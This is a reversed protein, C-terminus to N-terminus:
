QAQFDEKTGNAIELGNNRVRERFIELVSEQCWVVVDMCLVSEKLWRGLRRVERIVQLSLERDIERDGIRQHQMKGWPITIKIEMNLNQDIQLKVEYM